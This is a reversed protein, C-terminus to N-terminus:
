RGAAEQAPQKRQVARFKDLKSDHNVEQNIAIIIAILFGDDNIKEPAPM